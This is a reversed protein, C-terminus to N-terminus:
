RIDSNEKEDHIQEIEQLANLLVNVATIENAPSGTPRPGFSALRELQKRAEGALFGTVILLNLFVVNTQVQVLTSYRNFDNFENQTMACVTLEMPGQKQNLYIHIHM